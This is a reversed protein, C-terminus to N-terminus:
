PLNQCYEHFKDNPYWKDNFMAYEEKINEVFYMPTKGANKVEIEGRSTCVFLDKILNYTSESINIKGPEGCTEMRSAINVTDGWVDYSSKKDGVIGAVVEGSNIGVRINFYPKNQEEKQNRMKEIYILFENAALVANIAHVKSAVPIGGVCMYSDGITKIKELKYKETIRDFVKFCADLEQVLEDSNLIKSIKTFGEFDTFMVTACKYQVPEFKGKKILDTAVQEPLINGILEDTKTKETVLENYLSEYDKKPAVIVAKANEIEQNIGGLLKYFLLASKKHFGAKLFEHITNAAYTKSNVNLLYYISFGSLALITLKITITFPTDPLIFGLGYNLGFIVLSMLLSAFTMDKVQIMFRGYELNVKNKLLNALIIADITIVLATSIVIGHIGLNLIGTFLFNFLAKLGISVITIVFPTKTDKFAYFIRTLADRAVLPIIALVLFVLAHATMTVDQQDFQGGQYFLRIIDQACVATYATVPIAAFWLFNLVKYFHYKLDGWNKKAVASSFTPSLPLLLSTLIIGALMLYIRSAYCIASWAGATLGSTFFMDVFIFAQGVAVTIISPFVLEALRDLKKESVNFVPKYVFGLTLLSISLFIFQCVAGALAGCALAIGLQDGKFILVTLIFVINSVLPGLLSFLYKNYISFIGCSIGTIGSFLIIPSMIKLQMATYNQLEPTAAPMFIKTLFDSLLFILGGLIVFGAGSVTIFSNLIRQVEKVPRRTRSTILQSFVNITANYFPGGLGGILAIFLFPIQYAYFYADSATSAGYSHATVIDRMFESLKIVVTIVAFIGASHAANKYKMQGKGEFGSKM